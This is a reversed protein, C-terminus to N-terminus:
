CQDEALEWIFLDDFESVGLAQMLLLRTPPSPSRKGAAPVPLGAFARM